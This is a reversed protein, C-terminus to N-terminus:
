QIRAKPVMCRLGPEAVSLWTIKYNADKWILAHLSLHMLHRDNHCLSRSSLDTYIRSVRANLQIGMSRTILSEKEHLMGNRHEWMDWAIDWLKQIIATAWRRGTRASKSIDYYRQQQQSWATVLWGEFFSSWGVLKQAQLIAHFQRPAEYQIGEGSRWGKLYTIILYKLLPDKDLKSLLHELETVAKNWIEETGPGRCIWV